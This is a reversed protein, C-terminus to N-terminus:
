ISCSYMVWCRRGSILTIININTISTIGDMIAVVPKNFTGILHVLKYENEFYRYSDTLHNNQKNEYLQRLDGGACFAKSERHSDLIINKVQSLPSLSILKNTILNVMPLTLANLCDPRNMILHHSVNNRNYLVPAM